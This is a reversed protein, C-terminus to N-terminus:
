WTVTYGSYWGSTINVKLYPFGSLEGSWATLSPDLTTWGITTKSKPAGCHTGFEQAASVCASVVVGNASDNRVYARARTAHDFSYTANDQLPCTLDAWSSLKTCGNVDVEEWYANAIGHQLVAFTALASAMWLAAARRGRRSDSTM